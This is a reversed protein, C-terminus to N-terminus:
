YGGGRQGGTSFLLRQKTKGKKKNKVGGGPLSITTPKSHILKPDGWSSSRPKSDSLSSSAVSSGLSPFADTSPMVLGSERRCAQSFSLGLAAQPQLPPSPHYQERPDETNVLTSSFDEATLQPEEELASSHFFADDPDILQLRAKRDNIRAREERQLARNERKEAKVKSQRHKRRKALEGKFKQKTKESLIHNLDLEVFIIDTFLPLYSLFSLRKRLESTINKREIELIRGHIFDPMPPLEPSRKQNQHNDDDDNDPKSRSFDSMLLTMNFGNLFILQGDEAQYFQFTSAEDLYMSGGLRKSRNIDINRGQTSSSNNTTEEDCEFSPTSEVEAAQLQYFGSTPKMIEEKLEHENPFELTAQQIEKGIFALAMKVFVHDFSTKPTRQEEEQLEHQNRKLLNLYVSSDIYNFRSYKEDPDGMCPAAHPNSHKFCGEKPIYPTSCTKERHLKILRITKQHIPAITTELILPRLDELLM